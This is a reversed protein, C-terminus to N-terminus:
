QAQLFPPKSKIFFISGGARIALSINAHMASNPKKLSSRGCFEEDKLIDPKKDRCDLEIRGNKQEM